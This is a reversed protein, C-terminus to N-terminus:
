PGPSSLARLVSAQEATVGSARQRAAEAPTLGAACWSAVEELPVAGWWAAMVEVAPRGTRAAEAATFGLARFVRADGQDVRRRAWEGAEAGDWGADAYSRAVDAPVGARLLRRLADVVDPGPEPVAPRSWWPVRRPREGALHRRAADHPAVGLEHWRVADRPTMGARQWTVVTRPTAAATRWLRADAPATVGAERWAAAEEPGFGAGRWRRVEGQTFGDWETM